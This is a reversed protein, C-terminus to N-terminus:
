RSGDHMAVISLCATSVTLIQIKMPERGIEIVTEAELFDNEELGLDPFGFDAFVQLLRRANEPSIAVFVDLDGTYRPFGHYGVAYGGVILHKVGHKALLSLFERFHRNFMM